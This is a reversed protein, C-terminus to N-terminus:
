ENLDAEFNLNSNPDLNADSATTQLHEAFYTNKCTECFDYSFLQASTEKSAFNCAKM